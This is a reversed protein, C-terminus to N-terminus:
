TDSEDTHSFSGNGPTAFTDRMPQFERLACRDRYDESSECPKLDKM